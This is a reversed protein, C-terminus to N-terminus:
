DDSISSEQASNWRLYIPSHPVEMPIPILPSAAPIDNDRIDAQEKAETQPHLQIDHDDDRLREKDERVLVDDNEAVGRGSSHTVSCFGLVVQLVTTAMCVVWQEGPTDAFPRHSAWSSLNSLWSTRGPQGASM